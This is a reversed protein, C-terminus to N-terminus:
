DTEFSNILPIVCAEGENYPMYVCKKKIQSPLIDIVNNTDKVIFAFDDSSFNQFECLNDTQVLLQKGIIVEIKVDTTTKVILLKTITIFNGNVTQVVCNIRKKLRQYSDVHFLTHKFIFREFYLAGNDINKRLLQQILLQEVNTLNVDKSAGFIRLHEGFQICRKIKCEKMLSQFLAKGKLSCNPKAFVSSNLKVYRLRTYFKVIQEPLYQTGKFLSKLVGNYHEFPFTSWAWLAGFNHVSKPIHLLIHVNFTMFQIGYLSEIRLVFLRIATSAASHQAATIKEKLFIQISYVFLFWHEYHEKDMFKKFCILSYYLLFNRWESGKWKKRVEISQPCRTIESPPKLNLLVKDFDNKLLGLYWSKKHNKSAFMAGVLLRIVGECVSHLYDPPFCWIIHFASLLQVISPGKVGNVHDVQPNSNVVKNCDRKHQATTRETRVDGRYIRTSGKGHPISEGPILCYSCGCEGNHQHINQIAPRAASDVPALLSHVKIRIPEKHTFTTSEFGENHLRRLENIFPRLFMNMPPKKSAIWISCCLINDKRVRYPLENIQVLIPWISQKSSKFTNIGDTNWQITIDNDGIINHDRLLKYYNGNIIDSCEDNAKKFEKYYKSNILHILQKELPIYLFYDGNNDLKIKSFEKKCESCTLNNIDELNLIECCNWCFYYKITEPNPFNKLFHYKSKHM